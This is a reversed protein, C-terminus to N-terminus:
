WLQGYGSSQSVFRRPAKIIWGYELSRRLDSYESQVDVEATTSMQGLFPYVELESYTSRTSYFGAGNINNYYAM